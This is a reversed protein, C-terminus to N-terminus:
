AKVNKGINSLFRTQASALEVMLSDRMKARLEVSQARVGNGIARAIENLDKEPIERHSSSYKLTKNSRNEM